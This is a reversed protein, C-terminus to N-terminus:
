PTTNPQEPRVCEVQPMPQIVPNKGVMVIQNTIVTRTQACAAHPQGGANVDRTVIDAVSAFFAVAASAMAVWLRITDPRYRSLFRMAKSM